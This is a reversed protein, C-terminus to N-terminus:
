IEEEKSPPSPLDTAPVGRMKRQSRVEEIHAALHEHYSQLQLGAEYEVAKRVANQHDIKKFLKITSQVASVAEAAEVPEPRISSIPKYQLGLRKKPPYVFYPGFNAKVSAGMYTSVAPYYTGPTIEEFALGGNLKGKVLVLEGLCEGNKFFRISSSNGAEESSVLHIYCGVVDGEGFAEGGWSDRRISEHLLGGNVSRIGYSWKDYGVPAQLDATRMSWGLRVHSVVTAPDFASKVKRKKSSTSSSEATGASESSRKADQQEAEVARELQERLESGLRANSPLSQLIESPAPPALILCEYYYGSGGNSDSSDNVGHSARAMRYGRLAGYLSLRTADVRFSPAMDTKSWHVYFPNDTLYKQITSEQPLGDNQLTTAVGSYGATILQQVAAPIAAALSADINAKRKSKTPPPLSHISPVVPSPNNAPANQEASAATKGESAM